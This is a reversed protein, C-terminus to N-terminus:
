MRLLVFEVDFLLESDRESVRRSGSLSSLPEGFTTSDFVDNDGISLKDPSHIGNTIDSSLLKDDGLLKESPQVSFRGILLKEEPTITVDDSISARITHDIGVLDEQSTGSSNGGSDIQNLYIM